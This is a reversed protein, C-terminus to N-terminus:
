KAREMDIKAQLKEGGDEANAEGKLHGDAFTLTFKILPGPNAQVEFALKNGSVTGKLPWQQDASPGATGTLDTGKQKVDMVIKDNGMSGDPRISNFAGSWKGTFDEAAAVPIVLLVIAILGLLRKM